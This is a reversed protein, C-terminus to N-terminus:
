QLPVVAAFAIATSAAGHVVDHLFAAPMQGIEDLGTLSTGPM